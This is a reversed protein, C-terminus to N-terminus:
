CLEPRMLAYWMSCGPGGGALLSYAVRLPQRGGGLGEGLEYSLFDKVVEALLAKDVGSAIVLAHTYLRNSLAYGVAERKEGKILHSQITDLDRGTVQPTSTSPPDVVRNGLDAAVTFAASSHETSTLDPVLIRLVLQDLQPTGTLKGDHELLLKLLQLAVTKQEARARVDEQAGAGLYNREQQSEDIRVNLWALLEKKKKAKGSASTASSDMFLPGPFSDLGFSETPLLESLKQIKIPAVSNAPHGYMGYSASVATASTPFYTVLKGNFGFSAIPVAPRNRPRQPGLQNGPAVSNHDTTTDPQYPQYSSQSQSHGNQVYSDQGYGYAQNAATGAQAAELVYPAQARAASSGSYQNYADYSEYNGHQQQPQNSPTEHAVDSTYESERDPWYAQQQHTDYIPGQQQM